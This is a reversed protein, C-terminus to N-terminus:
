GITYTKINLEQTKPPKYEVRISILWLPLIDILIVKKKGKQM